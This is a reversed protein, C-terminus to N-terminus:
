PKKRADFIMLLVGDLVASFAFYGLLSAWSFEIDLAYLVFALVPLNVALVVFLASRYKGEPTM